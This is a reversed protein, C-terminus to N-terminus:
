CICPCQDIDTKMVSSLTIVVSSIYMCKFFFFDFVMLHCLHIRLTVDYGLFLRVQMVVKRWGLSSSGRIQIVKVSSQRSVFYKM